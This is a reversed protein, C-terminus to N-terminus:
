PSRRTDEIAAYAPRNAGNTYHNLLDKTTVIGVLENGEVVPLSSIDHDLLLHAAKEIDTGPTVTVPGTRMVEQAPLVLPQVDRHGESYTNLFPSIAELVDRDSIVGRLTGDEVVVMHNVGGEQLRKRIDVLAADPSVTAVERSMISDVTM